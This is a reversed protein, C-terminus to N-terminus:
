ALFLFHFQYFGGYTLSADYIGGFCSEVMKPKINVLFAGEFTKIVLSRTWEKLNYSGDPSLLNFEYVPTDEGGIDDTPANLADLRRKVKFLNGYILIESYWENFILGRAGVVNYLGGKMVLWYDDNKIHFLTDGISDLEGINLSCEFQLKEQNWEYIGYEGQVCALVRSAHGILFLSNVSERFGLLLRLSEENRNDESMLINQGREDEVVAVAKGGYSHWSWEAKRIKNFRPPFAFDGQQNIVGWGNINKVFAFLKDGMKEYPSVDLLWDDKLLNGNADIYNFLGDKSIVSQGHIFESKVIVNQLLLNGRRDFISCLREDHEDEVSIDAYCCILNNGYFEIDEYWNPFIYEGLPNVLNYFCGLRVKAYLGVEFNDIDDFWNEFLFSYNGKEYRLLAKREIVTKTSRVWDGDDDRYSNDFECTDLLIRLHSYPTSLINTSSYTGKQLELLVQENTKFHKTEAGM